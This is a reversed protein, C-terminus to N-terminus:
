TPVVVTGRVSPTKFPVDTLVVHVVGHRVLTESLQQSFEFVVWDQHGRFKAVYYGTPLDVVADLTHRWMPTASKRQQAPDALM